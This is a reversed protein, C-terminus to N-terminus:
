TNGLKPALKPGAIKAAMGLGSLWRWRWRAMVSSSRTEMRLDCALAEFARRARKDAIRKALRDMLVDHNVCDFFKELDVDVVVQNGAQVSQQAKLVAGHASRGPRFGHSHESFTPDIIPQMVQLLAQQILRDVVTPIGSERM